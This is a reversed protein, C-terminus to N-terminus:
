LVEGTEDEINKINTKNKLEYEVRAIYRKFAKNELLEHHFDSLFRSLAAINSEDELLTEDLVVTGKIVQAKNTLNSTKNKYFEEFGPVNKFYKERTGSRTNGNGKLIASVGQQSTGILLAVDDQSLGRLRMFEDLLERFM